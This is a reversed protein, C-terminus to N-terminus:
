AGITWTAYHYDVVEIAPLVADICTAISEITHGGAQPSADSGMRFAFEAEIVRHVFDNAALSSGSQRSSHSM